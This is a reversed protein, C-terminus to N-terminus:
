HIVGNQVELVCHLGTGETVLVNSRCHGGPGLATLVAKQGLAAGAGVTDRPARSGQTIRWHEGSM